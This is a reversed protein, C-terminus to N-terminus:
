NLKKIVEIWHALNEQRMLSNFKLSKFSIESAM